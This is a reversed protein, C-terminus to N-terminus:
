GAFLKAIRRLEVQRGTSTAVWGKLNAIQRNLKVIQEEHTEISRGDSDIHAQAESTAQAVDTAITDEFGLVGVVTAVVAKVQGPESAFRMAAEAETLGFRKPENENSITLGFFTIKM